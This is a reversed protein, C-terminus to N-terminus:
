QVQSIATFLLVLVGCLAMLGSYLKFQSFALSPDPETRVQPGIRKIVNFWFGILIMVVVLIHKILMLVSWTNAFSGLGLYNQDILTLYVGTIIFIVLAIYLWVRSRNSIESLIMGSTPESQYKLFVPLYISTFLLFHGIFFVTALSHLWFSISVLIQSM